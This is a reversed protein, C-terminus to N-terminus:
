LDNAGALTRQIATAAAVLAVLAARTASSFDIRMGFFRMGDQGTHHLTELYAQLFQAHDLIVRRPSGTSFGVNVHGDSTPQLSHQLNRLTIRHVELNLNTVRSAIRAARVVV